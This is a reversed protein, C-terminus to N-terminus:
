GAEAAPPQDLVGRLLNLRYRDFEDSGTPSAKQALENGRDWAERAEGERHEVWMLASRALWYNIGVDTDTKGDMRDWWLRASAADRRLLANCFVFITLLEAPMDSASERYVTEAESLSECCQPIKGNDLFYESAILRLVLAQQGQTFSRAARQIANIDYDRPRVPTVQTSSALMFARQLDALPGGRLIQYIRAGDSYAVGPRFPILNAAFTVLSITAILAFFEWYNQYPHGKATLAACLAILGTILNTGPGAAIMWIENRRNQRTDSPVIGAAGGASFIMSLVFQFRWRGNRIRWQFPGVVFASLKMGLAQGMAAHGLEHVVITFLVAAVLETWYIGGHAPHLGQRHGWAYWWGMGAFYGGLQLAWVLIDLLHSTGDGAIRPFSAAEAAGEAMADRPAFAVLGPIGVLLLIGDLILFGTRALGPGYSWVYYTTILMPIGHLLMVVSAAIAWGRGSRRGNKVTWWAMGYLLGLILPLAFILRSLGM